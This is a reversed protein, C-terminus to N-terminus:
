PMWMRLLQVSDVFHGNVASEWHFHAGSTRGTNGVMGIVQGKTVREGPEVTADSFHSYGTYVGYGHDIVVHLGRIPLIDVYAVVGGASAMVPTGSVTRIDWGTHRTNIAGNFTRFAGFPATLGSLIPMQFGSEDWMKELTVQAFLSEMRALEARETEIDLLYTKDSNLNVNQRIFGGLVIEVDTNITTRTGDAFTVFVDLPTDPNTESEMGAAILGYFGDAAPFFDILGDLFRARVGTIEREGNPSSVRALGTTGQPLTQFYLQLMAGDQTYNFAPNPRPARTPLPEPVVPETNEALPPESPPVDQALLPPAIVWVGLVIIFLPLLRKM